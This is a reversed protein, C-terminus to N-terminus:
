VFIEDSAAVPVRVPQVGLERSTVLGLPLSQSNQLRLRGARTDRVIVAPLGGNWVTLESCTRDLSLFAAACFLGPPLLTKLIDNVTEISEVMPVGKRCTAYFASAIPITGVAASLGHGTFDGVMWRLEGDHTTAALAVDGNFFDIPSTLHRVGPMDLCGQRRVNALLHGATRQERRVQEHLAHLEENQAALRAVASRLESVDRGVVYVRGEETGAGSWEISHYNGLKSLMRVVIPPQERNPESRMRALDRTFNDRDAPHALDPLSRDRLEHDEWGLHSWFAPNARLIRDHVIAMLDGSLMFFREGEAAANAMEELETLQRRFRRQSNRAFLYPAVSKAIRLATLKQRPEYANLADAACLLGILEGGFAIPVTLNRTLAAAGSLVREPENALCPESTALVTAWSGQCADRAHYISEADPASFAGRVAACAIDGFEDLYAFAGSPSHLADLLVDLVDPFFAYEIGREFIADLRQALAEDSALHTAQRELM